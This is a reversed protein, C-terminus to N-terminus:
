IDDVDNCTMMLVMAVMMKIAMMVGMVMVVMETM